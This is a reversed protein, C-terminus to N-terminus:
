CSCCTRRPRLPWEAKRPTLFVEDAVYWEVGLGRGEWHWGDTALVKSKCLGLLSTVLNSDGPGRDPEDTEASLQTPEVWPGCSATSPAPNVRTNVAESHLATTERPIKKSNVMKKGQSPPQSLCLAPCVM